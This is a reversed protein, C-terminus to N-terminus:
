TYIIRAEATHTAIRKDTNGAIGHNIFIHIATALHAGYAIAGKIIFISAHCMDGDAAASDTRKIFILHVGVHEAAALSSDISHVEREIGIVGVHIAGRDDNAVACQNITRDEAATLVAVHQRTRAYEYLLAGIGFVLRRNDAGGGELAVAKHKAAAQAGQTAIRCAAHATVGLDFHRVASHLAAEITAALEGEGAHIDAAIRIQLCAVGHIVGDAVVAQGFNFDAAADDADSASIRQSLFQQLAVVANAVDETATLAVNLVIRIHQGTTHGVGLNGNRADGGIGDVAGHEAAALHSAHAIPSLHAALLLEVLLRADGADGDAARWGDSGFKFELRDIHDVRGVPGDHIGDIIHRSQEVGARAVDKAAALAVRGHGIVSFPHRHTTRLIGIHMDFVIRGDHTGHEATGLLARHGAVGADRNFAAGDSQFAQSRMFHCGITRESAVSAGVAEAAHKAAPITHVADLDDALAVVGDIIRGSVGVWAQHGIDDRAADIAVGTDVDRAASDAAVHKAAAIHGAHSLPRFHLIAAVVENVKGRYGVRALSRHIDAALGDDAGHIASAQIGVHKAAGLTDAVVGVQEVVAVFITVDVVGM